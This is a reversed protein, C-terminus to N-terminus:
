RPSVMKAVVATIDDCPPSDLAFEPIAAYLKVVIQEADSHREAAVVQIARQDGFFDDECNQSETVGDTLLM